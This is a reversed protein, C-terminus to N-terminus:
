WVAKLQKGARGDWRAEYGRTAMQTRSKIPREHNRVHRELTKKKKKRENGSRGPSTWMTSRRYVQWTKKKKGVRAGDGHRDKEGKNWEVEWGGDGRNSIQRKGDKNNQRRWKLKWGVEDTQKGWKKKRIASSPKVLVAIQWPWLNCKAMQQLILNPSTTYRENNPSGRGEAINGKADPRVRRSLSLSLPLHGPHCGFNLHAKTSQTPRTTLNTPMEIHWKKNQKPAGCWRHVPAFVFVCRPM